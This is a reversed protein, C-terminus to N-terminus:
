LQSCDDRPATHGPRYGACVSHRGPWVPPAHQGSSALSCEAQLIDLWGGKLGGLTRAELPDPLYAPVPELQEFGNDQGPFGPQVIYQHFPLHRSSHLQWLRSSLSELMPYLAEGTGLEVRALRVETAQPFFVPALQVHRRKPLRNAPGSGGP